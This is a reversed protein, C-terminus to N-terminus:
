RRKSVQWVGTLVLAVGALQLLTIPEQLLWAALLLTVIPGAASMASTVEPGLQKLGAAMFFSPMVTSFLAILVALWLVDHPQALDSIRQTLSFHIVIALSSVLMSLATFRISGLQRVMRGSGLMFLAFSLASLFVLVAGLWLHQGLRINAAFILGIGAYSILLALLTHRRIPTRFALASILIVMTPYLYLIMRETGAPLYQLGSLDLLSALYYGLLGLVIVKGWPITTGSELPHRISTWVLAMVYFPASILMRLTMLTVPDIRSSDGYALKILVGKSAFGITGLIVFLIAMRHNRATSAEPQNTM